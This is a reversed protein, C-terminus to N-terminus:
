MQTHGVLSTFCPLWIVDAPLRIVEYHTRPLVNMLHTLTGSSGQSPIWIWVQPYHRLPQHEPMLPCPTWQSTSDSPSSSFYWAATFYPNGSNRVPRGFIPCPRAQVISAFANETWGDFWPTHPRCPISSPTAVWPSRTDDSHSCRLPSDRICMQRQWSVGQTSRPPRRIM